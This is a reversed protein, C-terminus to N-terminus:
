RLRAPEHEIEGGQAEDVRGAEGAQEGGMAPGLAVPAAERDDLSGARHAPQDGEGREILLELQEGLRARGNGGDVCSRLCRELRQVFQRYVSPRSAISERSSATGAAEESLLFAVHAENTLLAQPQPVGVADCVPGRAREAAAGQAVVLRTVFRGAM